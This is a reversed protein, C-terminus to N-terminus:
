EAGTHHATAGVGTPNKTISSCAPHGSSSLLLSVYFCLETDHPIVFCWADTSLVRMLDGFSDWTEWLTKLAPVELARCTLALVVMSAPNIALLHAAIRTALEDIKFVHAAMGSVGSPPLHTRLSSIPTAPVIEPALVPKTSTITDGRGHPLFDQPKIKRRSSGKYKSSTKSVTGKHYFAQGTRELQMGRWQQGGTSQPRLEHRDLVTITCPATTREGCSPICVQTEV